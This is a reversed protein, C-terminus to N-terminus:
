TAAKSQRLVQTVEAIISIAVEVPSQAGIDLGIPGHIRALDDDSFGAEKLRELRAAHTRRSGLSGIYFCASGLALRLAPDDLKPDHTLTVIATRTDPALEELADDPWEQILALGPFREPSSFGRRPDIVTVAYGAASAVPILAQAIHVAGVIIMRLAPNFVQVFVRGEHADFTTSKDRRIADNARAFTDASFLSRATAEGDPDMIHQQGTELLTLLAIPRHTAKLALIEDLTDRNM